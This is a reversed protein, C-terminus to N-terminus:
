MHCVRMQTIIEIRDATVSYDAPMRTWKLNHLNFKM